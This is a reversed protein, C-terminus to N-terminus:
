FLDEWPIDKKFNTLKFSTGIKKMPPKLYKHYIEAYKSIIDSHSDDFWFDYMSKLFEETLPYGASEPIVSDIGCNACLATEKKDCWETIESPNYVKLCFFCGCKSDKELAKRNYISEEHAYMLEFYKEQLIDLCKTFFGHGHEGGFPGLGDNKTYDRYASFIYSGVIQYTSNKLNKLVRNRNEVHDDYLTVYSEFYDIKIHLAEMIEKFGMKFWKDLDKEDRFVDLLYIDNYIMM